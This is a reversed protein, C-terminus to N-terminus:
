QGSGHWVEEKEKADEEKADAATDADANKDSGARGAVATELYKRLCQVCPVYGERIAEKATLTREQDKNHILGCGAVHFVKTGDAVVVQMDPPINKGAQALESKTPPTFTLSNALRLGGAFLAVAAVPVLWTAWSSWRSGSERASQALRRELRRSYGSPVEIALEDIMREDSYLRVVDRTGELVSRCKACSQFHVEMASGLAPDVDGEIYNSIEQWVLECNVEKNVM